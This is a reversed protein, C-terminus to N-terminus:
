SQFYYSPGHSDDVRIDRMDKVQKM